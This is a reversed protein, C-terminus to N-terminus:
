RFVQPSISCPAPAAPSAKEAARPKITSLDAAPGNVRDSAGAHEVGAVETFDIQTAGTHPRGWGGVVQQKDALPIAAPQRM